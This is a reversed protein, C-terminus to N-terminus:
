ESWEQYISSILEPSIPTTLHKFVNELDPINKAGVLPFKVRKYTAIFQLAFHTLNLDHAKLLLKLAQVREVKKVVEKKNWWPAWSRADSAEYKRTQNVRGSLIGKDLSGWSMSLIDDTVFDLNTHNFLNIESQLGSIKCVENARLLDSPHTNCLGIEQIDGKDQFKKVVSLADQIDVKPDPWHIMYMSIPRNLRKLSEVIMKEMVSPANSMNVRMNPHWDVGGKTVIYADKPLYQGMRKESLGFGYIPATDFLRIGMEWASSLLAQAEKESMPGFGYGGGEGSLAAGGFGMPIHGLVKDQM